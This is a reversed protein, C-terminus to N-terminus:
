TLIKFDFEDDGFEDSGGLQTSDGLIKFGVDQTEVPEIAKTEPAKYQAKNKKSKLQKQKKEFPKEVHIEQEVFGGSKEEKFSKLIADGADQSVDPLEISAMQLHMDRLENKLYVIEENLSSEKEDFEKEMQDKETRIKVIENDKSSIVSNLQSLAQEYEDIAKDVDPPHYGWPKSKKFKNFERSDISNKGM